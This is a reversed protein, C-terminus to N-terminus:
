VSRTLIGLVLSQPSHIVRSVEELGFLEPYLIKAIMEIAVAVRPGPRVLADEAEDMLVYIRGEKVAKLDAWGPLSKLYDIIEEPSKGPSAHGSVIIVDPQAEIVAEPSVIPYAETVDGFANIGGAISIIDNIYSKQGAVMLPELWVIHIVRLKEPIDKTKEWVSRIRQKLDSIVEQAKDIQGTAQGITTISTYIDTLSESKVVIVNIGLSELIKVFPAQLEVAIVLDPNLAVIKEINPNIFGGIVEIKGKEKLEEVEPPYNSFQDVGVVKDGLDLAFLTETISPAMSVIREPEKPIVVVRGLADTITVPFPKRLENIAEKLKTAEGAINQLQSNLEEVESTLSKLNEVSSKVLNLDSRLGEIASTLQSLEQKMNNVSAGLSISNYALVIALAIVLIALVIAIVGTRTM